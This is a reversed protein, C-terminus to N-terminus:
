VSVHVKAVSEVHDKSKEEMDPQLAQKQVAAQEAACKYVNKDINM